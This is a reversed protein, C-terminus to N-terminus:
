KGLAAGVWFWRSAGIQRRFDAVNHRDDNQLIRTPCWGSWLNNLIFFRVYWIQFHYTSLWSGETSSRGRQHTDRHGQAGGHPEVSWLCCFPEDLFNNRSPGFTCLCSHLHLYLFKSFIYLWSHLHLYLFKSFIYLKPLIILSFLKPDAVLQPGENTQLAVNRIKVLIDIDFHIGTSNCQETVRLQMPMTSAFVVWVHVSRAYLMCCVNGHM